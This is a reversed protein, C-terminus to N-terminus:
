TYYKMAKARRSLTWRGNACQAKAIDSVDIKDRRFARRIDTTTALLGWGGHDPLYMIRIGADGFGGFTTVGSLWIRFWKGKAEKGTYIRDYPPDRPHKPIDKRRIPEWPVVLWYKSGDELEWRELEFMFRFCLAKTLTDWGTFASIAEVLSAVAEAGGAATADEMVDQVCFGWTFTECGLYKALMPSHGSKVFSDDKEIKIGTLRLPLTKKVRKPVIPRVPKSSLVGAVPKAVKTSIVTGKRRENWVVAGAAGAAGALAAFLIPLGFPM